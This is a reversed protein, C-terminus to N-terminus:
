ESVWEVRDGVKIEGGAIVHAFAGGGWDPKMAAQLGPLYAEMRECPTTEGGIVLRVDGISLLYTIEACRRPSSLIDGAEYRSTVEIAPCSGEM